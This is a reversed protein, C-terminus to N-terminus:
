VDKSLKLYLHKIDFSITKAAPLKTGPRLLEAEM